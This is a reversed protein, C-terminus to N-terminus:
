PDCDRVQSTGRSLFVGRVRTPRPRRPYVRPRPRQPTRPPRRPHAHTMRPARRLPVRTRTLTLTTPSSQRPISSPRTPSQPCSRSLRPRIPQHLESLRSRAPDSASGRTTPGHGLGATPPACPPPPRSRHDGRSVVGPLPSGVTLSPHLLPSAGALPVAPGRVLRTRGLSDHGRLIRPAAPAGPVPRMTVQPIAGAISPGSPGARGLSVVGAYSFPSSRESQALFSLRVSPHARSARSPQTSSLTSLQAPRSLHGGHSVVIPSPSAGAGAQALPVAPRSSAPHSQASDRGASVSANSGRACPRPRRSSLSLSRPPLDDDYALLPLFFFPPFRPFPFRFPFCCFHFLPLSPPDPPGALLFRAMSAMRLRWGQWGQWRDRGALRPSGPRSGLGFPAGGRPPPSRQRLTGLRTVRPTVRGKICQIMMCHM